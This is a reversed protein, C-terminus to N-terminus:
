WRRTSCTGPTTTSSRRARQPRQHGLGRAELGVYRALAELQGVRLLVHRLRLRQVDQDPRPRLGRPLFEIPPADQYRHMVISRWIAIAKQEDTMGEKIFSRKWAEMSSVDRVKDSLVKVHSVVGVPKAADAAPATLAAFCVALGASLVVCAQAVRNM